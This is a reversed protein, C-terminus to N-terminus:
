KNIQNNSYCKSTVIGIGITVKISGVTRMNPCLGSACMSLTVVTNFSFPCSNYEEINIIRLLLLNWDRKADLYGHSYACNYRDEQTPPHSCGLYASLIEPTTIAPITATMAASAMIVLMLKANNLANVWLQRRVISDHRILHYVTLDAKMLIQLMNAVALGGL